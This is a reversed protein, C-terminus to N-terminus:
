GIKTIAENMLLECHELRAATARTNQTFQRFAIFIGRQTGPGM